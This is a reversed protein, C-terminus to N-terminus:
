TTAMTLLRSRGFPPVPPSNPYRLPWMKVSLLPNTRETTPYGVASSARSAAPSDSYARARSTGTRIALPTAALVAAAEGCDDIM